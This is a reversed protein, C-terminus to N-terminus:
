EEVVKLVVTGCLVSLYLMVTSRREVDRHGTHEPGDTDSSLNGAPIRHLFLAHM